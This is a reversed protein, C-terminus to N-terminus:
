GREGEPPCVSYVARTWTSATVPWGNGDAIVGALRCAADQDTHPLAARVEHRTSRPATLVEDASAASVAALVPAPQAAANRDAEASEPGKVLRSGAAMTLVVFVLALLMRGVGRMRRVAKGVYM